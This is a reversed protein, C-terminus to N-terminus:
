TKIMESMVTVGISLSLPEKLETDPFPGFSPIIHKLLDMNLFASKKCPVILINPGFSCVLSKYMFYDKHM